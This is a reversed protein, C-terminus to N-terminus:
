IGKGSSKLDKSERQSDVIIGLYIKKGLHYAIIAHLLAFKYGTTKVIKDKKHLNACLM